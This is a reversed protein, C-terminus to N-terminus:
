SILGLQRLAVPRVRELEAELAGANLDFAKALRGFSQGANVAFEAAATSRSHSSSLGFVGMAAFLTYDPWETRLVEMVVNLWCAMRRFLRDMVANDDPMRLRRLDHKLFYCVAGSKLLDVVHSTYGPCKLARRDPGFLAHLRDVFSQVLLPIASVDVEEVDVSRILLMAEDMGDALLGAQLLREATLSNLFAEARPGAALRQESIQACTALFAPLYLLIRGMPAALSEFRHKAARLNKIKQGWKAEQKVVQEQFITKLNFSHQIKQCMSSKDHVFDNLLEDLYEDCQYPRTMLRRFSHAKDRGIMKLNPTLRAEDSNDSEM